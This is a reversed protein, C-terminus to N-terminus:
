SEDYTFILNPLAIASGAGGLYLNSVGLAYRIYDGKGGTSNASHPGADYQTASTPATTYGSPTSDNTGSDSDAAAAVQTYTTADDKFWLKLGAAPASAIHHRLNSLNTADAATVNLRYVKPWSFATGTANPKPIPTTTGALSEERNYKAGGEATALSPGAGSAYHAQVTAAM